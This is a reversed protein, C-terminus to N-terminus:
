HVKSCRAGDTAVSQELCSQRHGPFSPRQHHVTTSDLEVHLWHQCYLLAYLRHRRRARTTYNTLL